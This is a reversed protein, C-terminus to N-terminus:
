FGLAGRPGRKPILSHIKPRSVVPIPRLIVYSRSIMVNAARRERRLCWNSESQSQWGLRGIDCNVLYVAYRVDNRAKETWPGWLAGKLKSSSIKVFIERDGKDFKMRDIADLFDADFGAAGQGIAWGGRLDYPRRPHYVSVVSAGQRNWSPSPVKGRM